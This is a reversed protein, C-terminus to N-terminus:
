SRQRTSGRVILEAPFDYTKVPEQDGRLRGLLCEFATV